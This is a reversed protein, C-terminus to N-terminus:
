GSVRRGSYNLPFLGGPFPRGKRAAACAARQLELALPLAQREVLTRFDETHPVGEWDRWVRHARNLTDEPLPADARLMSSVAQRQGLASEILPLATRVARSGHLLRYIRRMSRMATGAQRPTVGGAVALLRAAERFELAAANLLRYAPVASPCACGHARLVAADLDTECLKHAATSSLNRCAMLRRTQDEIYPHVACDLAYHTCFGLLYALAGPSGGVAEAMSQFVTATGADHHLASGIRAWPSFFFPDPGQSGWSYALPFAACLHAVASPAAQATELAFAHHVIFSPM